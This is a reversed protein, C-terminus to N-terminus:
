PKSFTICYTTNAASKCIIKSGPNPFPLIVDSCQPGHFEQVEIFYETAKLDIALFIVWGPM